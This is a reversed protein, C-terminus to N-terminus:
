FLSLNKIDKLQKALTVGKLSKERNQEYFAKGDGNYEIGNNQWQMKINMKKGDESRWIMKCVSNKLLMKMIQKMQKMQAVCNSAM